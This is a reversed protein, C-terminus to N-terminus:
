HINMFLQKKRLRFHQKYWEPNKLRAWTYRRYSKSQISKVLTVMYAGFSLFLFNNVRLWANHWKPHDLLWNFIRIYRQVRADEMFTKDNELHFTQHILSFFIRAKTKEEVANIIVGPTVKKSLLYGDYFDRLPYSRHKHGANSLRSHIFTHIFKHNDSPVFVGPKGPIPKCESFIMESTFQKAYQAKVPLRHVEVTAAEHYKTLRPFHHHDPPLCDIGVMQLPTLYGQAAMLQTTKAYDKEAVLFDIDGIMREGADAYVQDLLNGAGKLYIHPIGAAGLLASINNMQELIELNSDRNREWIEQLQEGYEDPFVDLLGYKKFKLYLVPLVLHNSCLWILDDTSVEGSTLKERIEFRFCPYEDLALCRGAFNFLESHKM